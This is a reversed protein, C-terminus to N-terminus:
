GKRRKLAEDQAKIRLQKELIWAADRRPDPSDALNGVIGAVLDKVPGPIRNWARLLSM